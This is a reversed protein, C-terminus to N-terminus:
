VHPYPTRPLIYNNTARLISPAFSTYAYVVTEYDVRIHQRLTSSDQNSDSIKTRVHHYIGLYGLKTNMLWMLHMRRPDLFANLPLLSM